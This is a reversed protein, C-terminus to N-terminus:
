TAFSATIIEAYWDLYAQVQKALDFREAEAAARRGMQSAQQRDSLLICIRQAMGQADGPPVLFGTKGEIIQEPIGGVATAVVPKGCAMAELISNPFTDAKAAHLYLDAAQYYRAVKAPDQQFPVFRITAAGLQEDHGTQGLAVFDVAHPLRAGVIQLARRMTQYDKAWNNRIGAAAFLLVKAHPPIGLEARAAQQDNPTFVQRDVGNPIVRAQAIAQALMSQQVQQM